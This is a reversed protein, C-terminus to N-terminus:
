FTNGRRRIHSTDNLLTLYAGDEGLEVATLGTNGRLSFRRKAGSNIGLVHCVVTGITGGHSVVLVTEGPHAAVLRDFCDLVRKQFQEHSEGGPPSLLGNRWAAWEAPFKAELENSSLGAFQGVDRERWGPDYVPEVGLAIGVAAATQVARSLDSSYVSRIGSGRLREAVARAQAKGVEDLPIDTHGQWRGTANWATQGHRVFLLKTIL